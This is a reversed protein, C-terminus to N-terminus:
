DVGQLCVAPLSQWFIFPLKGYSDPNSYRLYKTLRSDYEDAVFATDMKTFVGITKAEVGEARCEQVLRTALSAVPHTRSDVVLMFISHASEAVVISKSLAYSVDAVAKPVAVLGPLDLIDINPCYPVHIEIVVERDDFILRTPDSQHMDDMLMQVAQCMRGLAVHELTGEVIEQTARNRVFVRSINTGVQRRLKVRTPCRTCITYEKGRPFIPFGILRELLTSKGHNETGLVVVQPAQLKLQAMLDLHMLADLAEFEDSSLARTLGTIEPVIDENMAIVAERLTVDRGPVHHLAAIEVLAKKMEINPILKKKLPKKTIPSVVEQGQEELRTMWQTIAAREYTIKDSAVVPDKMVDYTIPCFFSFFKQIDQEVQSQM